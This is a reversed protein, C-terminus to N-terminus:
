SRVMVESLVILAVWIVAVVGTSVALVREPSTGPRLFRSVPYTVPSSLVRFFARVKSAPNQSRREVIWALGVYVTVMFAVARLLTVAKVLV